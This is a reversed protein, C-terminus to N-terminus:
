SCIGKAHRGGIFLKRGKKRELNEWSKEFEAWHELMQIEKQGIKRKRRKKTKLKRVIGNTISVNGLQEKHLRRPTMMRAQRGESARLQKKLTKMGSKEIEVTRWTTLFHYMDSGGQISTKKTEMFIERGCVM